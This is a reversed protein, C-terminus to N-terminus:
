SVAVYADPRPRRTRLWYEIVYGPWLTTNRQQSDLYWSTCGGASWVAKRLRRQVGRSFNSMADPKVELTQIGEAKMRQLCRLIYYIQAEIMLVVSNHGLGTNPGLLIFLNPFGPVAMGLYAEAGDRWTEELTRGGQGVVQLPRLFGQVDFGTAFVVADITRETGDGAVISHTHFGQAGTPILEVNPRSLAPYYDDSLLVRKCGIDYNPKLRSRLEPSPVSAALHRLARWKAFWAMKRFAFLATGFFEHRFFQASRILSMLLPWRRLLGQAQRKISRDNRPLVWPPTRQFIHLSSVSAALEPILQIASAGTGVVAVRRGELEVHPDWRASHLKIGQFDALGPLAPQKPERLPGTGALLMRAWFTQDKPGELKWLRTDNDWVARHIPTNLQLKPELQYIRVCRKLYDLIEAQRPYVHSWGPEKQFSFAYLHGPIDCACGPYTNDRWTGGVESGSEFIAFNTYGAKILGIAAGLGAFGAGIIAVELPGSSASQQM